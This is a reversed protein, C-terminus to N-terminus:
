GAMRRAIEGVSELGMGSPKTPPGRHQESWREFGLQMLALHGEADGEQLRERLAAGYERRLAEDQAMQAQLAEETERLEKTTPGFHELVIARVYGNSRVERGRCKERVKALIEELTSPRTVAALTEAAFAHDAAGSIKECVERFLAVDSETARYPDGETWDTPRDTETSPEGDTRTPRDTPEPFVRTPRAAGGSDPGSPPEDEPPPTPPSPAQTGLRGVSATEIDAVADAEAVADAVAIRARTPPLNKLIKLIRTVETNAGSLNRLLREFNQPVNREIKTPPAPSAKDAATKYQPLNKKPTDWALWLASEHAYVVCLHNEYYDRIWSWFEAESPPEQYGMFAKRVIVQYDLELRGYGNSCYFIRPWRDQAEDSCARLRKGEFLGKPDIRLL